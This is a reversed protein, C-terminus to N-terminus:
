GAAHVRCHSRVLVMREVVHLDMRAVHPAVHPLLRRGLPLMCLKAPDCHAGTVRRPCTPRHGCQTSPGTPGNRAAAMGMDHARGARGMCDAPQQMLCSRGTRAVHIPRLRPAANPTHLLVAPRQVLQTCVRKPVCCAREFAMRRRKAAMRRGLAAGHYQGGQQLGAGCTTAHIGHGRAAAHPTSITRIRSSSCCALAVAVTAIHCTSTAQQGCAWARDLQLGLDQRGGAGCCCSCLVYELPDKCAAQVQQRLVLALHM